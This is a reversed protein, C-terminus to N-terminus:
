KPKGGLQILLQNLVDINSAQLEQPVILTKYAVHQSIWQIFSHWALHTVNAVTLGTIVLTGATSDYKYAIGISTIFAMLISMVLNARSKNKETGLFSFIALESKKMAQIILSSLLATGGATLLFGSDM